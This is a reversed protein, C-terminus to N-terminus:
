ARRRRLLGLGGLGLLAMTMPEPIQHIVVRDLLDAETIQVGSSTKYLSVTADGLNTCHFLIEDVFVTGAAIPVFEMNFISGWVGELGAPPIVDPNDGTPGEIKNNISDFVLVGGSIDAQAVEVVLAWATGGFAPIDEATYVDLMLTDSPMIEILSDEPNMPDWTEQGPPNTHVSIQLAAGAVSAMGISAMGLVLVLALLKKM